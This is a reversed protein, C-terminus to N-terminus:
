TEIVGDNELLNAISSAVIDIFDQVVGGNTIQDDDTATSDGTVPHCDREHIGDAALRNLKHAKDKQCDNEDDDAERIVWEAFLAQKCEENKCLEEEVETRVCGGEDNWSFAERSSVARGRM